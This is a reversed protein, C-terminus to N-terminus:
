SNKQSGTTGWLSMAKEFDTLNAQSAERNEEQIRQYIEERHIVINSPAQIGVRVQRGKVELITLAIHDGITIREGVKRTLILM